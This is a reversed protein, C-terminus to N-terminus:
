AELALYRDSQQLSEQLAVLEGMDEIQAGQAVTVLGNPGRHLGFFRTQPHAQDSLRLPQALLIDLERLLFLSHTAVFIQLGHQALDHLVKATLRVL